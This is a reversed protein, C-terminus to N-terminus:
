KSRSLIKAKRQERKQRKVARKTKIKAKRAALEKEKMRKEASLNYIRVEKGVIQMVYEDEGSM